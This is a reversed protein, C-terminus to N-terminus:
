NVVEGLMQKARQAWKHDRRKVFDPASEYADLGKELVARARLHEGGRILYHALGVHHNIRTSVGVLGELVEIADGRQGNQWLAEAYDLAASYDRYGNDLRLLRDLHQVAADFRGLGMECRAVGHLAQKNDPDGRLVDEYLPLAQNCEDRLELADALTLKNSVSPTEDLQKKLSDVNPGAPLRALVAQPNWDRLKVVAFYVVGGLPAFLVIIALWYLEAKRRLADVVMWLTFAIAVYYFTM